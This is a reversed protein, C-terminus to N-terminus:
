VEAAAAAISAADTVDLPLTEFPLAGAETKLVALAGANRGSALVRHGRRLLHLAAFRGIGATAGTILITKARMAREEPEATASRNVYRQAGTRSRGRIDGDDFRERNSGIGDSDTIGSYARVSLRGRLRLCGQAEHHVGRHENRAHRHSG